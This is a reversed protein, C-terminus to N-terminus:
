SSPDGDDALSVRIDNELSSAAGQSRLKERLAVPDRIMHALYDELSLGLLDAYYKAEGFIRDRGQRLYMSLAHHAQTAVPRTGRHFALSALLTAELHNLPSITLSQGYLDYNLTSDPEPPPNPPLHAVNTM